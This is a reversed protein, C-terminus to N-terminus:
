DDEQCALTALQQKEDEGLTDWQNYEDATANWHIKARCRPCQDHSLEIGNEVHDHFVTNACNWWEPDPPSAGSAASPKRTRTYASNPSEM